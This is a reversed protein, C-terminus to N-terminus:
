RPQLFELLHQAVLEPAILDAGHAQGELVEVRADPLREAVVDAQWDLTEVGGVLLLTPVTIREPHADHISATAFAPEERLIAHAAAVRGAWSPQARYADIEEDTMKVAERLFTELLAERDGAALHAELRAMMDPSPTWVDPDVPPWGEYLVLRDIRSTLTAAGFACLGGFSHGYVHVDTGTSEAIAEVVTAVDEFERELAYPERDGSAGRGRRDMAYVSLHEELLPRLTDWRTHDSVGGHVLLLPPGVGAATYAIETGDPSVVHTMSRDASAAV